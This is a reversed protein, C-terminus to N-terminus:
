PHIPQMQEVDFMTKYINALRVKENIVSIAKDLQPDKNKLYDNKTYGVKIDPCIGVKNIDEGSPTLYKAVTINMGTKFPLDEIRQVLGKGFTKEGILEAKHSDKMAGSFIESASASGENILIVTPKSIYYEGEVAKIDTKKGERDVISVIVGKEMFMNALMVANPLLGGTNGRIDLIIGKAGETAYLAHIFEDPLDESLFSSITIHAINQNKIMEYSVTKIKIEQRTITKSFDRGDRKLDLKVRSGAKGRIMQAVDRLKLGKLEKNDVKLIIDNNKLKAKSAPTDDIVNVITIKNDADSINIGIGYLKSDINMNQDEFDYPNMFRTYPDNLSELMSEVAIYSDDMTKIDSFYRDRWYDWDQKNLSKDYYHEKSLDWAKLFLKQADNKPQYYYVLGKVDSRFAFFLASVLILLILSILYVKKNKFM